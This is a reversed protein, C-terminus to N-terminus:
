AYAIEFCSQFTVQQGGEGNLYIRATVQKGRVIETLETIDM